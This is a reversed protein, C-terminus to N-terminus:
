LLLDTEEIMDNIHRFYKAAPVGDLIRHDFTFNMPMMSRIVVEGNRAVPKEMIPGPQVMMAQGASLIPTTMVMAPTFAASSLTITAGKLEEPALKGARAKSAMDKIEKSIEFLSKRAADKVVPIFIGSEYESIETAMAVGINVDEWVLIEDGVFSSNVIPVKLAARAVIYTLIDTYSVKVGIKEAKEVLRTRLAMIETVDVEMTYSLQASSQLSYVVSDAIAKRMGKVPVRTKVKLGDESVPAVEAVPEPAVSQVAAAASDIAALVDKKVIRGNPGTGSVSSLDVGELAALKKAVPSAIIRGTKEEQVAQGSKESSAQQQTKEKVVSVAACSTKQEAEPSMGELTESLIAVVKGVPVTEGAQVVIDLYGSGVSEIEYSVKETEIELLVQGEEVFDGQNFKWSNITGESMAMALKPMVIEHAM